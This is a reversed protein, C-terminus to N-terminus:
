RQTCNHAITHVQMCNNQLFTCTHTLVAVLRSHLDDRMGAITPRCPTYCARGWSSIQLAECHQEAWHAERGSGPVFAQYSFRSVHVRRFVACRELRDCHEIAHLTSACFVQDTECSSVIAKMLAVLAGFFPLGELSGQKATGLMASSVLNHTAHSDFGIMGPPIDDNNALFGAVVEGVTEAMAHASGLSSGLRPVDCIDVIRSDTDMRSMVFSLNLASLWHGRWVRKLNYLITLYQLCLYCLLAYYTCSHALTHLFPRSSTAVVSHSLLDM